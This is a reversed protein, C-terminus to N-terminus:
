HHHHIEPLKKRGGSSVGVDRRGARGAAVLTRRDRAGALGLFLLYSLRFTLLIDCRETPPWPLFGHSGYSSSAKHSPTLSYPTPLHACILSICTFYLTYVMWSGIQWQIYYRLLKKKLDIVTYVRMNIIYDLSILHGLTYSCHWSKLM